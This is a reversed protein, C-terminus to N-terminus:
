REQRGQALMELATDVLSAVSDRHRSLGVSGSFVNYCELESTTEAVGKLEAEMEYRRFCEVSEPKSQIMQIALEIAFRRMRPVNLLPQNYRRLTHVLREALKEEKVGAIELGEAQEVSSTFRFIQAALGISVELLKQEEEMIAKLVTPTAASVRRLRPYCDVGAYACLNRLIRASHVCLVPDRLAGVLRDITGLRLMRECNAESDLALMALAEGAEVNVKNQVETQGGPRLFISLLHDMVGGTSGIRERAADDMALNTLIEIGLKQLMMHNGGHQLIERINSITFVIESLERRLQEGTPGTAGALLKVLQLSRKIARVQSDTVRESRLLRENSGTFDIIRPLLGRTNGIKGCNDHDHGLKKLILLGLLNFASYEYDERGAAVLPGSIEDLKPGNAGSRSDTYLLSSISEMAGPIGAVRLANQKKGALKSVVEAAARRIEAESPDKWNLMELLREIVVTSTGVKRLTGDAFRDNNAFSQLVRAGMLQEDHSDSALLEQAFSVLDMKLGDFISGNVCRSYADYFFRRVCVIVSADFGCEKNVRELMRQCTVKWEWYLKEALFMAAEALATGYFVNLAAKRNRKDTDGKAIEGYDQQILRVLSLSVCAAASLLQLWYLVQGINRSLFVWGAYPLLPVDSSEWTRSTQTSPRRGKGGAAARAASAAAPSRGTAGSLKKKRGGDRSQTSFSRLGCTFLLHSSSRLLRFSARGADTLSWSTSQHQWELEHSRSFIRAGEILLIVTVVWFDTKDLTIAFGGLLVVTAWIFGLAGLGSAAKELIALRLAFLTLKKEPAHGLSSSSGGGTPCDYNDCSVMRVPNSKQRQSDFVTSGSRQTLNRHGDEEDCHLQEPMPVRVSPEGDEAADQKRGELEM